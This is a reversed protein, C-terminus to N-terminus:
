ITNLKYSWMNLPSVNLDDWHSLKLAVVYSTNTSFCFITLNNESHEEIGPVWDYINKESNGLLQSHINLARTLDSWCEYLEVCTQFFLAAVHCIFFVCLFVFLFVESIHAFCLSLDAQTELYDSWRRRQGCLSFKFGQSDLICWTFIRILSRSHATQDSDESPSCILLYTIQPQLKNQRQSIQGDIWTQQVLRASELM